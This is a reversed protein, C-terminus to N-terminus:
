WQCPPAILARAQPRLCHAKNGGRDLEHTPQNNKTRTLLLANVQTPPSRIIIHFSSKPMCCWGPIVDFWSQIEEGVVNRIHKQCCCCILGTMRHLTRSAIRPFACSVALTRRLHDYRVLLVSKCRYQLTNLFGAIYDEDRKPPAMSNQITLWANPHRHLHLELNTVVYTTPTDTRCTRNLM